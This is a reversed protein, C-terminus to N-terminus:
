SNIVEKKDDNKDTQDNGDSLYENGNNKDGYMNM